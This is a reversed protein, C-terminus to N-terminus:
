LAKFVSPQLDGASGSGQFCIHLHHSCSSLLLIVKTNTYLQLIRHTSPLSTIKPSPSSEARTPDCTSTSPCALASFLLVTRQITPSQAGPLNCIAATSCMPASSLSSINLIVPSETGTHICASADLCVPLSQFMLSSSSGGLIFATLRAKVSGPYKQRTRTTRLSKRLSPPELRLQLCGHSHPSTHM